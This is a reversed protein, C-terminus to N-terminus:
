KNYSRKDFYGLTNIAEKICKLQQWAQGIQIGKLRNDEECIIHALIKDLNEIADDLTVSQM